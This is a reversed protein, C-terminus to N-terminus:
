RKTKCLDSYKGLGIEPMLRNVEYAITNFCHVGEETEAIVRWRGTENSNHFRGNIPYMINQM